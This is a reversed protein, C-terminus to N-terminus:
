KSISLCQISPIYRKRTHFFSLEYDPSLYDQQASSISPLTNPLIPPKLILPIPLKPILPHPTLLIPLRPIFLNLTFQNPPTPLRQLILRSLTPPKRPTLQSPMLPKRPTPPRPLTLQSTSTTNLRAKTSSTPSSDGM